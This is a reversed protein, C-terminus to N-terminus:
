ISGKPLVESYVSIKEKSRDWGWRKSVGPRRGRLYDVVIGGFVPLFKFSHYSGGVALHLGEIGPVGDVLPHQYPTMLEPYVSYDLTRGRMEPMMKDLLERNTKIRETYAKSKLEDPHAIEIIDTSTIQLTRQKVSPMVEGQPTVLIPMSKFQAYEDETLPSTAVGIATVRFAHQLSHPLQIGSSDLLAPTWPGTAVITTEATFCKGDVCEAGRCVGNEVLLKSIDMKQRIVGLTAAEVAVAELALASDVVGIDKNLWLNEEIDLQPPDRSHVMHLLDGANILREELHFPVYDDGRVVQVWGTQRYFERYPLETEWKRKAEAALSVYEKDIYPTRIIKCIGKSATTTELGEFVVIKANPSDRQLALATSIAMVGGGVIAYNFHLKQDFNTSM